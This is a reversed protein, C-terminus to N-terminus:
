QSANSSLSDARHLVHRLSDCLGERYEEPDPAPVAPHAIAEHHGATATTSRLRGDFLQDISQFIADHCCRANTGKSRAEVPDRETSTQTWYPGRRSTGSFGEAGAVQAACSRAGQLLPPPGAAGPLSGRFVHAACRRPASSREEGKSRTRIQQQATSSVPSTFNARTEALQSASRVSLEDEMDSREDERDAQSTPRQSGCVAQSLLLLERNHRDEYLKWPDAQGAEDINAEWFTNVRKHLLTSDTGADSLERWWSFTKNPCLASCRGGGDQLARELSTSLLIQEM